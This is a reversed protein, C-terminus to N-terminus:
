RSPSNGNRPRNRRPGPKEPNGRGPTAGRLSRGTANPGSGTEAPQSLRGVQLTCVVPIEEERSRLDLSLTLQEVVRFAEPSQVGALWQVLSEMPASVKLMVSVQSAQQKGRSDVIRQELITLGLARAERQLQDLLEGQAAGPDDITPQHERMWQRRQEWYDRDSLLADINQRQETLARIQLRAQKTGGLYSKLAIVNGAFFLVGLFMALLRGEKRSIGAM